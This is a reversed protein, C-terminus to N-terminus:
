KSRFAIFSNLPRRKAGRARRGRLVPTCPVPNAPVLPGVNSALAPAAANETQPQIHNAAINRQNQLRGIIGTLQEPTMSLLFANFIDQFEAMATAM